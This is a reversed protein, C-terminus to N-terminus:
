RGVPYPDHNIMEEERYTHFRIRVTTGEGLASDVELIGGLIAARERMGRLGLGREGPDISELRKPDFGIGDDRIELTILDQDHTLRVIVSSAKAHRLVNTLGEQVIRFLTTEVPRPFRKHLTHDQISFSLGYKKLRQEGYWEIAAVLGLDDLLSPRLDAILRHINSLMDETISKLSNIHNDIRSIDSRAAMRITDLGVLLATLSQSTEDHLERSIRMREDEQAGILQHVLNARTREELQLATYLRANTIALAAENAIGKLLTLEDEGIRAGEGTYLDLRGILNGEQILNTCILCCPNLSQRVKASVLRPHTFLDVQLTLADIQTAAAEIKSRSPPRTLTHIDSPQESGNFYYLDEEGHQYVAVGVAPVNLARSTEDCVAQLVSELELRANLHGAIRTLAEARETKRRIQAQAWLQEQERRQLARAMEDFARGLHDLEGQGPTWNTRANLDGSSLRQTVRVLSNVQRLFFFQTGFWATGLALVAGIVLAILNLELSRNTEAFAAETPISIIMHVDSNAGAHLPTYAYLRAIGNVDTGQTLGSTEALVQSTLASEPMMRGIEIEGNPYSALIIGNRDIVRLTSGAPLPASTIFQELWRLDLNAFVIGQPEGLPNMVPFALTVMVQSSTSSIQYESIALDGSNISQQFYDLHAINIPLRQPLTMCFVNGAGDAAGFNAYLPHQMLVNSLFFLCAARDQSQIAPLQALTILIDRAGDILRLQNAAALETLRLANAQTENIARSRSQSATYVMLSFAPLLALLLLGIVRLRLSRLRSRLAGVVGSQIARPHEEM